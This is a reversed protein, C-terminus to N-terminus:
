RGRMAQVYARDPGLYMKRISGTHLARRTHYPDSNHRWDTAGLAGAMRRDTSPYKYGALRLCLRLQM